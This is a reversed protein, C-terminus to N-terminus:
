ANDGLRYISPIQEPKSITADLDKIRGDALSYIWSHINLEQGAAWARQVSPSHCVNDAQVLVNLECLRSFREDEDEIAMLEAENARHVDKINRLWSDILGFSENGMAAKVGGCGYHGCVIVHKVKLVEVAYQIVSHANIDAHPVMNAINRHVFVEGPMLKLLQNAPVRSDACGIWLYEPSQVASLKEFFDPQEARIAEAWQKNNELLHFHSEDTM